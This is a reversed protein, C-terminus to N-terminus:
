EGNRETEKREKERERKERLKKFEEKWRDAEKIDKKIRRLEERLLKRTM